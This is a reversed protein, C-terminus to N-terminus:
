QIFSGRRSPQDYFMRKRPISSIESGQHITRNSSRHTKRQEKMVYFCSAVATIKQMGADSIPEEQRYYAGNLLLIFKSRIRVCIMPLFDKEGFSSVPDTKQGMLQFVDFFSFFPLWFPNFYCSFWRSGRLSGTDHFRM